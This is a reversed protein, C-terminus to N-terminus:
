NKSKPGSCAIGLITGLATGIAFGLLLVLSKTAIFEGVVLYSVMTIIFSLVSAPIARRESVFRIHLAILADMVLGCLLYGTFYLLVAM